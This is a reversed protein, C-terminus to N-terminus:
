EWRFLVRKKNYSVQRYSAYLQFLVFTLFCKLFKGLSLKLCYSSFNNGCAFKHDFKVSFLLLM